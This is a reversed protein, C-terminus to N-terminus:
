FYWDDDGDPLTVDDWIDYADTNHPTYWIHRPMYVPKFPFVDIGLERLKYAIAWLKRFYGVESDKRSQYYDLLDFLHRLERRSMGNHIKYMKAGFSDAQRKGYKKRMKATLEDALANTKNILNKYADLVEDIKKQTDDM